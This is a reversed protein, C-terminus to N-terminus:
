YGGQEKKTRWKVVESLIFRKKPGIQHYPMGKKIYTYVTPRSVGLVESVQNISITRYNQKKQYTEDKLYSM